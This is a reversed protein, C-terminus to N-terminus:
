IDQTSIWSKEDVPSDWVGVNATGGGVSPNTVENDICESTKM